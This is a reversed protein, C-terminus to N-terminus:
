TYSKAPFLVIEMKRKGLDLRFLGATKEIQDNKILPLLCYVPANEGLEAM